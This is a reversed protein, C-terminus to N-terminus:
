GDRLGDLLDAWEQMMDRRESLYQAQIYSARSSNREKHALQREIIDPRYGEENLITSATARFGHSSFQGGYGMRELARNLTTNTMCDNPRLNNPFLFERNGTHLKLENLLDISQHSLPVLHEERMKMRVAPVRWLEEDSEFEIWKAQRLESPRVFTLLLLRLAIKTPAYGGYSDLSKLFCRIKPKALPKHHRVTPREIAGKLASAPDSECRLTVVGYQFVASCWQRILIAVTPAGREKVRKLLELIDSAHIKNIPRDGISPFVDVDMGRRVQNFYYGSWKPKKNAIWEEAVAAFTNKRAVAQARKQARKEQTPHMGEEVLDRAGSLRERADKLSVNPYQGITYMNAKGDIRYRYRWYKQGSPRVEITLGLRDAIRYVKDKPKASRIKVDSLPM